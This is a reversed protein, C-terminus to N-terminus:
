VHARGIKAARELADRKLQAIADDRYNIAEVVKSRDTLDISLIDGGGAGTSFASSQLVLPENLEEIDATLQAVQQECNDKATQLDIIRAQEGQLESTLDAISADKSALNETHTANLSKISDRLKRIVSNSQRIAANLSSIESRLSAVTNRRNKLSIDGAIKMAKDASDMAKQVRSVFQDGPVADGKVTKFTTSVSRSMKPDLLANYVTHLGNWSSMIANFADEEGLRMYMDAKRQLVDMKDALLDLFFNANREDRNYMMKKMALVSTKPLLTPSPSVTGLNHTRARQRM